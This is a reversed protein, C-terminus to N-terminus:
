RITKCFKITKINQKMDFTVHKLNRVFVVKFAAPLQVGCANLGKLEEFGFDKL